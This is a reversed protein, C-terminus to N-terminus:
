ADTRIPKAVFSMLEIWQHEPTGPNIMKMFIQHIANRKFNEEPSDQQLKEMGFHM